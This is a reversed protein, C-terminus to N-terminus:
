KNKEHIKICHLLEIAAMTIQVMYVQEDIKNKEIKWLDAANDRVARNGVALTFVHFFYAFADHLPVPRGDRSCHARRTPDFIHGSPQRMGGIGQQQINQLYSTRHQSQKKNIQKNKQLTTNRIKVQMKRYPRLANQVIKDM